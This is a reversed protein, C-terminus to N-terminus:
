EKSGVADLNWLGAPFREIMSGKKRPACDKIKLEKGVCLCEDHVFAPDGGGGHVRKEKTGDWVKVEVWGTRVSESSRVWRNPTIAKPAKIRAWTRSSSLRPRQLPLALLHCIRVGHLCPPLQPVQARALVKPSWSATSACYIRQKNWEVPRQVRSWGFSGCQKCNLYMDRMDQSFFFCKLEFVKSNCSDMFLSSQM